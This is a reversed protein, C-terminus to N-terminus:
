DWNFTNVNDMDISEHTTQGVASSVMISQDASMTIVMVWPTDYTTQKM